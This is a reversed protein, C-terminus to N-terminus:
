MLFITNKDAYVMKGCKPCHSYGMPIAIVNECHQCKIKHYDFPMNENPQNYFINKNTPVFVSSKSTYIEQPPSYPLNNERHEQTVYTPPYKKKAIKDLKKAVKKQNFKFEVGKKMQLRREAVIYKHNCSFHLM